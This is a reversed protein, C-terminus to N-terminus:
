KSTPIAKLNTLVAQLKVFLYKAQEVYQIAEEQNPKAQGHIVAEQVIRLSDYIELLEDGVLKRAVLEWVLGVGRVEVNLADGLEGLLREIGDFAQLVFRDALTGALYPDVDNSPALLKFKAKRIAEAPPEGAKKVDEEKSKDSDALLEGLIKDTKFTLKYIRNILDGIRLFLYSIEKQFTKIVLFLFIPWVLVGIISSTLQFGDM